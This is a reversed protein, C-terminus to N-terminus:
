GPGGVPGTRGPADAGGEFRSLLADACIGYALFTAAVVALTVIQISPLGPALEGTVGAVLVSGLFMIGGAALGRTIGSGHSVRGLVLVLVGGLAGVVAGVIVVMVVGRLSLNTARGLALAIGAMAFRGALGLVLAGAVAGALLASPTQRYESM